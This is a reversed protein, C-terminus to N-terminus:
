TAADVSDEVSAAEVAIQREESCRRTRIITQLSQCNTIRGAM